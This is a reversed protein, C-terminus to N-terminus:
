LDRATALNRELEGEERELEGEERELEGEELTM